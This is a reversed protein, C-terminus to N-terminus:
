SNSADVPSDSAAGLEDYAKKTLLYGLRQGNFWQSSLLGRRVMREVAYAYAPRLRRSPDNAPTVASLLQDETVFPAGGGLFRIAANTIQREVKGM